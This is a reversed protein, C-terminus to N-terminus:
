KFEIKGFLDKEYKIREKVDTIKAVACYFNGAKPNTPYKFRIWWYGNAKILQDFDVWDDKTFLWSGKDVIAGSTSPSRRVRIGKKANPYFRGKWAWKTKKPTAKKAVKKAVAKVKQVPNKSVNPVWFGACGFYNDVRRRPALNGEGNWNQEIVTMFNRDAKEVIFIHGWKVYSPTGFTAVGIAGKPPVYNPTNAHWTFYPALKNNVADRANGWMRIKNETFWLVYDIILDMCQANFRKDVDIAGAEMASWGSERYMRSKIRYPSDVTKDLYSKLRANVQSQTAYGKMVAKNAKQEAKTATEPIKVPEVKVDKKYYKAVVKDLNSSDRGYGSAQLANGPDQKDDQINQHGPMHTKYDIKWYESLYALVKAGNELSKLSREKAQKPNNKDIFYSIEVGVAADNSDVGYWLNDQIANYLVHWAKETTPVCIIAHKDDVFIHASATQNIDINYTNKYYNVNDQATSNPNGTDHAVLFEPKGKRLKQGSRRTGFPLLQFEIPVGKWTEQTM